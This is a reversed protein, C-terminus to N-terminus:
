TAAMHWGIVEAQERVETSNLGLEKRIWAVNVSAIWLDEASSSEAIFESYLIAATARDLKGVRSLGDREIRQLAAVGAAVADAASSIGLKELQRSLQTRTMM